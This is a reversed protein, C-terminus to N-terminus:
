ISPSIRHIMLSYNISCKASTVSCSGTANTRTESVSIWLKDASVSQVAIRHQAMWRCQSASEQSIVSQGFASGCQYLLPGISFTKDRSITISASDPLQIQIQSGILDSIALGSQCADGSIQADDVLYTGTSTPHELGWCLDYSCANHVCDTDNCSMLLLLFIMSIKM